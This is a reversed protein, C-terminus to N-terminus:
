KECGLWDQEQDIPQGDPAIFYSNTNKQVDEDPMNIISVMYPGFGTNALTVNQMQNKIKSLEKGVLSKVEVSSSPDARLKKLGQVYLDAVVRSV